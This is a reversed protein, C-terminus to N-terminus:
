LSIHKQFIMSFTLNKLVVPSCLGKKYFNSPLNPFQSTPTYNVLTKKKWTVRKRYGTVSKGFIVLNHVHCSFYARSMKPWFFARSLKHSARSLFRMNKGTVFFFARSLKPFVLFHGHCRLFTARSM